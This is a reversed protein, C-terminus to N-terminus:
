KALRSEIQAITTRLRGDKRLCPYCDSKGDIGCGKDSDLEHLYSLVFGTGGKAALPLLDAKKECSEALRLRTAIVVANSAARAFQESRLWKEARRRTSERVAKDLWLQYLIEAGKTAMTGELLAFATDAADRASSNATRYLADAIRADARRDPHKSLVKVAAALAEADRGEQLKVVMLGLLFEPDKTNDVTAAPGEASGVSSPSLQPVTGASPLAVAVSPVASKAADALERHRSAAVIWVVIAVVLGLSLGVCFTAIALPPIRSARPGLRDRLATAALRTSHWFSALARNLSTGLQGLRARASASRNARGRAGITKNEDVDTLGPVHTTLDFAPLAEAPAQALSGAPEAASTGLMLQELIQVVDNARQFREAAGKALLRYVVREVADPVRVNPAVDAFNPRPATIQQALIATQGSGSPYPRIGAIMEFLIVGLSYLDARTDVRQGLAQEPAMYEPTGFVAGVKTLAQTPGSEGEALGTMRAIGFDLVKVFDPDEGRHVLMVNEPKLDRHVIGLPQAAGLLSAIQRAVHLARALPLPGESIEKRLSRGEVFELALYMSGDALHGFDVAAAVNPHDIKATAMAEREFRIALSKVSNLERHLVKVAMKKKLLLHEVAYVTGMSGSGLVDLIRYREAIVTGAV